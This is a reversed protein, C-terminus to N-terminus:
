ECRGYGNPYMVCTKGSMELKYTEAGYRTVRGPIFEKPCSGQAAIPSGKYLLRSGDSKLYIQCGPHDKAEQITIPEIQAQAPSVLLIPACLVCWVIMGHLVSSARM